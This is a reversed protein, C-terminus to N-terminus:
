FRGACDCFGRFDFLQRDLILWGIHVDICCRAVDSRGILEGKSVDWGGSMSVTASLPVEGALVM